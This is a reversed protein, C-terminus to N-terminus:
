NEKYNLHGLAYTILGKGMQKITDGEKKKKLSCKLYIQFVIESGHRPCFGGTIVIRNNKRSALKGGYNQKTIARLFRLNETKM